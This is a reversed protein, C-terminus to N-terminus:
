VQRDSRPSGAPNEQFVHQRDATELGLRRSRTGDARARLIAGRIEAAVIRARLLRRIAENRVRHGDEIAQDAHKLLDGM